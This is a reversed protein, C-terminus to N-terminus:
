NDSAPWQPCTVRYPTDPLYSRWESQTLNRGTAQCVRAIWREADIDWMRVTKDVGGSVLAKGDPLFAVRTVMGIHGRLPETLQRPRAPDSVDWLIITSDLSASALTNGDPSFAIDVVQDVHGRLPEALQRPQAPDSVDWLIITSDDSGSALTRDDPSFAINYVRSSHGQLPKGILRVQNPNSMDWLLVKGDYAGSALLKGDSSFTVSTVVDEHGRLLDGLQRPQVPDSVDWVQLIDGSGGSVLLRGDPSFALSTVQGMWGEHLPEGLVLPHRPDSIDWLRVTGDNSGSVLLKGDPSFTLCNVPVAHKRLAEDLGWISDPRNVFSLRINDFSSSALLKGDPSVAVDSVHKVRTYLPDGLSSPEAPNVVNWIRITKDGSGSALFRSDSSFVVSTVGQEHGSLPDGIQRSQTPDSVDWLLITSDDSGAALTRGDQSFSVSNVSGTHGSLPEGLRAPQAPDSVNWLWISSDRSGAALMKGDTSFAVSLVMDAHKLESVRRPQSPDSVNWLRAYNDLSGSALLKGDPSFAVSMVRIGARPIPKGLSAPHAPDTVNWLQLTGDWSGSALTKGDPSFAVSTVTGEHGRLPEGLMRPHAPDRVDWLRITNDMSGSALTKGDPSFALSGVADEHGRLPEGLPTPKSPDSVDWLRITNDLSGSALVKGAPSFALAWVSDDHAPTTSISRLERQLVNLLGALMDLRPLTRYAEIGLLGARTLNRTTDYLSQASLQRALAVRAQQKANEANEQAIQRDAQATAANSDARAANQQALSANIQSERAFWVAGTTALVVLALATVLLIARRRLRRNAQVQVDARQREAEALAKAQALEREREAAEFAASEGLFARATESSLAVDQQMELAKAQALWVGKLLYDESRGAAEWARLAAEFRMRQQLQERAAQVAAQLEEWNAILSEHIISVREADGTTAVSLLRAQVLDDILRRKDAPFSRAERTLQAHRADEDLTVSILDLLLSLIAAQEQESRPRSPHAADYDQWTLVQDARLKIADTLTGYNALVLKGKRWLEELTVQLLPLLTASASADQALRDLLAPEFRKSGDPFRSHLPRQIADKLEDVTMARLEVSNRRALEWVSKTDFLEKLYDSRLTVIVHMLGTDFAPLGALWAFLAEREDPLSQTFLEEFQDIVIVDIEGAQASLQKRADNLMALPHAGPRFIAKRVRQGRKAYHAELAPLLGAQALSSKGSGSAGTIFLVGQSQGPTALRAVAEDIARQRGAYATRDDYTFTRLGLYPNPLGAVHHATEGAFLDAWRAPAVAAIAFGAWRVDPRTNRCADLLAPLADRRRFVETICYAFVEKGREAFPVSDPDIGADVCLMRLEDLSFHQALADHLAIGTPMDM